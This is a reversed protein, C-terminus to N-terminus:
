KCSWCNWKWYWQDNCVKVALECTKTLVDSSNSIKNHMKIIDSQLKLTSYSEISAYEIHSRYLVDLRKKINNSIETKEDANLLKNIGMTANKNIEQTDEEDLLWDIAQSFSDWIKVWADYIQWFSKTIFNNKLWHKWTNFEELNDLM